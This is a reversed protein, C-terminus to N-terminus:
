GDQHTRGYSYALWGSVGHANRRQVLLEVGRAFGELANEYPAATVGRIVRGNVIRTEAAPRRFFGSEERDFVTVQWRLTPGIRQEFGLDYQDARQAGAGPLGFAGIVQEFEPFQRYIGTGGRIFTSRSVQWEGQIWPSATTQDTLTWHDARAGPIVTLPGASLRLQAYGGSRTANGQFDNITRYRGLAGNFRQRFRTEDVFEVQAGADAQIHRALTLSRM